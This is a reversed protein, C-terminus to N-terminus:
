RQSPKKAPPPYDPLEGNEIEAPKVVLDRFLVSPCIVSSELTEPRNSVEADDGVAVIERLARPDVQDLAAGRVLEQRGDEAYIRYILRPADIGALTAVIYGYDLHRERCLDLLKKKLEERTLALSSRVFLNSPAPAAPGDGFRRGHGNSAPFDRIPTRGLLYNMLRGNEVITVPAGKVGEDDVIYSGALWKDGFRDVKPDDVVTLFDPLVQKKFSGAYAGMTRAPNGPEARQGLVENAVLEAFIDNSADPLFLVPGRYEDEIQPAKRLAKLSELTAKVESAFRETSPLETASPALITPSRRLMVGDATQAIANVGLLYRSRGTRTVTGESNV